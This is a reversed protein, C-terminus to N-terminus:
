RTGSAFSHCTPHWDMEILAGQLSYIIEEAHGAYLDAVGSDQSRMEQEDQLRPRDSIMLEVTEVQAALKLLRCAIEHPYIHENM